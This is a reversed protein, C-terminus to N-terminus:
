IEFFIQESFKMFYIKLFFGTLHNKYCETTLRAPFHGDDGRLQLLSFEIVVSRGRSFAAIAKTCQSLLLLESSLKQKAINPINEWM